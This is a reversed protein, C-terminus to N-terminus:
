SKRSDVFHNFLSCVQCFSDWDKNRLYAKNEVTILEIKSQINNLAEIIRDPTAGLNKMRTFAALANLDVYGDENM